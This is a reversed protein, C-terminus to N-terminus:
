PVICLPLGSEWVKFKKTIEDPQSLFSIPLKEQNTCSFIQDFIEWDQDLLNNQNPDSM